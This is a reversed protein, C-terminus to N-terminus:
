WIEKNLFNKIKQTTSIIEEEHLYVAISINDGGIGGRNKALSVMNVLANKIDKHFLNEKMEDVSVYEWFGDSCILVANPRNKPLDIVKYTAAVDKKTSVSKLLRNQDPHTAMEEETIEELNVLMQVVSHDKTRYLFDENDFIYLRSDGIHGSYVKDDQILALVCTTQPDTDPHEVIYEKLSLITNNIILQFFEQPNGIKTKITSYLKQAEKLLTQSAVAGGKHGGMGDGLVLFTSYENKFINCSDQQEERAGINLLYNTKM